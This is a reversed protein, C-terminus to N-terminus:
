HARSRREAIVLRMVARVAEVGVSVSASPPGFKESLLQIAMEAEERDQPTSTYSVQGATGTMDDPPAMNLGLVATPVVTPTHSLPAVATPVETPAHTAVATPVVTSAIPTSAAPSDGNSWSAVLTASLLPLTAALSPSPSSGLWRPLPSTALTALDETLLEWHESSPLEDARRVTACWQAWWRAVCVATADLYTRWAVTHGQEHHTHACLLKEKLGDCLLQVAASMRDRYSLSAEAMWNGEWDLLVCPADPSDAFGLNGKHWDHPHIGKSAAAEITRLICVVRNRIMDLGTVNLPHQTVRWLLAHFTFAIREVLLFAIREGSIM